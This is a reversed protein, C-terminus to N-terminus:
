NGKTFGTMDVNKYNSEAMLSFKFANMADQAKDWAKRLASAINRSGAKLYLHAMKMIASRNYKGNSILNM